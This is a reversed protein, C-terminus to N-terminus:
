IGAQRLPNRVKESVEWRALGPWCKPAQGCRRRMGPVSAPACGRLLDERSEDGPYAFVL